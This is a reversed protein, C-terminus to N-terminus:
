GNFSVKKYSRKERGSLLYIAGLFLTKITAKLSLIKENHFSLIIRFFALKDIEGLKLSKVLLKERMIAIDEEQFNQQAYVINQKRVKLETMVAEKEKNKFKSTITTCHIRVSFLYENNLVGKYGHRLFRSIFDLDQANKLTEDYAIRVIAERSYFFTLTNLAVRQCIFDAFINEIDSFPKNVITEGNLKVKEFNTIIYDFNAKSIKSVCTNILEQYMLDDSDFWQVYKGKSVKFGYNRAGNGGPLHEDPRHYYKFRSDKKVYEGVVEDTNDSSGDDVIICEWNEYTQAVVSDLTEGILHARNYTPIIISVLPQDIM